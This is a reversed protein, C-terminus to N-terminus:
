GALRHDRLTAAIVRQDPALADAGGELSWVSNQLARAMTWRAARARDLALVDTMLDFRRLVDAPDDVFRNHLAPMLEFAPDGVLPKPDIALWPERGDALAAPSPALVNQYHLDWHLLSAGPEPAVERLVAACDALLRREDPDLLRDLAAPTRALLGAAIDRLHRLGPPPPVATLRALLSAIVTVAEDLDSVHDLGRGPDLTELLLTGSDQDHALLRVAGDGNWAHLAAPEGATEADIPQLKLVAPTGDTRTVPLVLAVAGHRTPGAPTLSWRELMTAALAPLADVWALGADGNWQRHLRVLAPPVSIM